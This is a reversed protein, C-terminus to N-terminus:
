RALAKKTVCQAGHLPEAPVYPRPPAHPPALHSRAPWHAPAVPVGHSPHPDYRHRAPAPPVGPSDSHTSLPTRLSLANSFPSATLGSPQPEPPPQSGHRPLFPQRPHVTHHASPIAIPPLEFPPLAPAHLTQDLTDHAAHDITLREANSATGEDAATINQDLATVSGKVVSPTGGVGGANGSAVVSQGVKVTSSNGIPITKLGSANALQIVAVDKTPDTGVVSATYTRGTAVVTVKLSTAGDVVHNNTLIEGTSTLIMGTGAAEGNQYGLTSVIDVLAGDVSSAATASNTTLYSTSTSSTLSVTTRLDDARAAGVVTVALALTLGAALVPRRHPRLSRRTQVGPVPHEGPMSPEGPVPFASSAPQDNTDM